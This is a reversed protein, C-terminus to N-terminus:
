GERSTVFAKLVGRGKTGIIFQDSDCEFDEASADVFQFNFRQVFACLILYMEAWALSYNCTLGQLLERMVTFNPIFCHSSLFRFRKKISLNCRKDRNALAPLKSCGLVIERGERSRRM